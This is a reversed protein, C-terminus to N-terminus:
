IDAALVVLRCHGAVARCREVAVHRIHENGLEADARQEVMTAATPAVDAEVARAPKVGVAVVRMGSEPPCFFRFADIVEGSLNENEVYKGVWPLPNPRQAVGRLEESRASVQEGYGTGRCFNLCSGGDGPPRGAVDAVPGAFGPACELFSDGSLFDGGECSM